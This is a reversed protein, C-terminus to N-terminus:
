GNKQARRGAHAFCVGHQLGGMFAQAVAAVDDDAPHFGVAALLGLLQHGAQRLDRRFCQLIAAPFQCLHIDVSDDSAPRLQHQDVLQGMRIHGSRAMHPPELVDLFKERGADVDVCRQVDLMDLTEVIHHRLDGANDDLLRHRVM